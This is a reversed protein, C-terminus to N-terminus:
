QHMREGEGGRREGNQGRREARETRGEGNQGRRDARETRGEEINSRRDENKTRRPARRFASGPASSSSARARPARSRATRSCTARSGSTANLERVQHVVRTPQNRGFQQYVSRMITLLETDSQRGVVVAAAGSARFVGYRIAQQVAEVNADSFLLQALPSERTDIQRLSSLVVASSNRGARGNPQSFLPYDAAASGPVLDVRGGFTPPVRANASPPPLLM